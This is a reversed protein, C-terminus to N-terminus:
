NRRGLRKSRKAVIIIPQFADFRIWRLDLTRRELLNASCRSRCDSRKRHTNQLVWSPRLASKHVRQIRRSRRQIRRIGLRQKEPLTRGAPVLGGYHSSRHDVPAARCRRNSRTRHLTRESRPSDPNLHQALVTGLDSVVFIQPTCPELQSHGTPSHLRGGCGHTKFWHFHTMNVVLPTNIRSNALGRAHV